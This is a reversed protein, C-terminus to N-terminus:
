NENEQNQNQNSLTKLHDYIKQRIGSKGFNVINSEEIYITIAKKPSTLKKRGSNIRKGGRTQKVKEM